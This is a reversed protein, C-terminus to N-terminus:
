RFLTHTSTRSVLLLSPRCPRRCCSNTVRIRNFLRCVQLQFVGRRTLRWIMRRLRFTSMTELAFDLLGGSDLSINRCVCVLSRNSPPHHPLHRGHGRYPLFHSLPLFFSAWCRCPVFPVEGERKNKLCINLVHHAILVYSSAPAPETSIHVTVNMSFTSSDDVIDASPLSSM